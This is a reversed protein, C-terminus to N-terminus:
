TPFTAPVDRAQVVASVIRQANLIFSVSGDGLVTSGSFDSGRGMARGLPKIVVQNQSEIRDVVFGARRGQTNVVVVNQIDAPEGPEDFYRRLDVFALAAGEHNAVTAVADAFPLRRRLIFCESVDSLNVVFRQTGVRVILSDIIALTLPLKISVSTGQGQVSQITLVGGLAEIESKVVDMGVGRGSVSSVERATSFGPRLILDVAEEETLNTGPAILGLSAAKAAVGAVDIGRGDDSVTLEVTSGAYGAVLRIVGAPSKGAAEREEETELGHDASNRIMHVLPNRLRDIVTKDLETDAGHVQLTVRKGLEASLDRVLRQFSGFLGELPTLRMAMSADRLDATLMNLDESILDISGDEEPSAHERLRNSITVLQGVLDVVADIKESSVRISSSTATPGSQSEESAHARIFRQEGLAKQVQTQTTVGTQVALEGFRKQHSLVRAIGEGDILGQRRLVEGLPLGAEDPAVREVHVASDEEVFIFVDHIENESATTSLVVRWCTYCQEPDIEELDPIGGTDAQVLAEGLGALEAILLEPRGGTTFIGPSPRFDVRFLSATGAVSDAPVSRSASEITRREVNDEEAPAGAVPTGDGGKLLHRIEDIAHLTENIVDPPPVTGSARFGDFREELGHTLAAVADYGFMTSSGKVTHLGRFLEHILEPTTEGAEIRMLNDEVGDLIEQTEDVFLRKGAEGTM